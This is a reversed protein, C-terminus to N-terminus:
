SVLSEDYYMHEIMSVEDESLDFDLALADAMHQNNTTGTMPIMGIKQSFRFVIQEPTKGIKHSLNALKNIM